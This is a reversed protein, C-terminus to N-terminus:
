FVIGIMDGFVLYDRAEDVGASNFHQSPSLHECLAIFKALVPFHSGLVYVMTKHMTLGFFNQFKKM